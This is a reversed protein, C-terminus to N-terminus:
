FFCAFALCHFFSSGHSKKKKKHSKLAGLEVSSSHPPPWSAGYQWLLTSAPINFQYM